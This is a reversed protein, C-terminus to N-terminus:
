RINVVKSGSLTFMGLGGEVNTPLPKPESFPNNPNYNELAIGYKYHEETIESIVLFLNYDERPGNDDFVFAFIETKQQFTGNKAKTDDFYEQPIFIKQINNDVESYAEIRYYNITNEDDNWNVDLNFQMGWDSETSDMTMQFNEPAKPMKQQASLVSGDALTAQLLYTEGGVLDLISTNYYANGSYFYEFTKGNGILEVQVDPITEFKDSPSNNVLPRSKTLQIENWLEINSLSAFLVPKEPISPVEVDLVTQCSVALFCFFIIIWNKM